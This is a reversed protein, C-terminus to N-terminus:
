YSVCVSMTVTQSFIIGTMEDQELIELYRM